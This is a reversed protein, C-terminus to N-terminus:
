FRFMRDAVYIFDGDELVVDTDTAGKKLIKAVDVIFTNASESAGNSKRTLTVNHQNAFDTFGGVRLIAKSLTLDEDNPLDLAGPGRVPGYLYIRGRSKVMSDIALVVTAQYYYEKELETKLESALAKCTKGAAHYRGIHPVDLDGSPKVILLEPKEEDEIVRFSLIDGVFLRHKADLDAMAHSSSLNTVAANTSQLSELTRKESASLNTSLLSDLTLAGPKALETAPASSDGLIRFGDKDYLSSAPGEEAPLHCISAVLVLCALELVSLNVKEAAWCDAIRWCVRSLNGENARGGFRASSKGSEALHSLPFRM